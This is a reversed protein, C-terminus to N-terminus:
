FSGILYLLAATSAPDAVYDLSVTFISFARGWTRMDLRYGSLMLALHFGTQDCLAGGVLPEAHLLPCGPACRPAALVEPTGGPAGGVHPGCACWASWVSWVCELVSVVLNPRRKQSPAGLSM